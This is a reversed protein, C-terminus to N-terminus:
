RVVELTGMGIHVELDLVGSEPEDVTDVTSVREVLNTGNSETGLCSQNGLNVSCTVNVPLEPPLLVRADGAMGVEVRTRVTEGDPVTLESLDLDIRGTSLLYEERLQSVESVTWMHNGAGQWASAPPLVLGALLTLVALPGAVWILGRGGRVFAGVVLGAGLVALVAGTLHLWGWSLGPGDLIGIALVVLAAALTIPTVKSRRAPEAPPEEEREALGTGPDPLDWAFPAVGLPDWDPPGGHVTDTGSGPGPASGSGTRPEYDATDEASPPPPPATGATTTGTAHMNSASWARWGPDAAAAGLTTTPQREDGPRQRHLLFLAGGGLALGTVLTLTSNNLMIITSIVILAGLAIPMGPSSSTSGRGLLSEAPAAEDGEQALLLWGLLYLVLGAGGITALVVFGVRALIPDIQYRRAIGSAVGAIKRNDVPRDPRTRWM